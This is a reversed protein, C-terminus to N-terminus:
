CAACPPPRPAAPAPEVAQQRAGTFVPLDVLLTYERLLKGSPWNANIVFDLFPERVPKLSTIRVVPGGPANLDVRFVLDTLFQPREVGLRDFEARSALGISIQEDTLERVQLLQIEANLPQNLASNLKIEGLGLALAGVSCFTTAASVLLARIRLGM